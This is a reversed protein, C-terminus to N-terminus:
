SKGTSDAPGVGRTLRSVQCNVTVVSVPASCVQDQVSRM